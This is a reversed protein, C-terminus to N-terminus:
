VIPSGTLEVPPAPSGCVPAITESATTGESEQRGRSCGALLFVLFFSQFFLDIMCLLGTHIETNWIYGDALM